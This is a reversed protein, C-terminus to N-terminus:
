FIWMCEFEQAQLCVVNFRKELTCSCVKKEVVPENPQEDGVRGYLSVFRGSIWSHSHKEGLYEVHYSLIAGQPDKSM